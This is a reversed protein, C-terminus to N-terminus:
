SLMEEIKEVIQKQEDLPPNPVLINKMQAQTLKLRTTGSVYGKYNFFNLYYCLFRNNTKSKM